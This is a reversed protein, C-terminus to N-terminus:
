TAPSTDPARSRNRALKTLHDRVLQEIAASRNGNGIMLLGENTADDVTITLPIRRGTRLPPRRNSKSM